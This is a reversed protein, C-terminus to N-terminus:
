RALLEGKVHQCPFLDIPVREKGHAMYVMFRACAKHNLNCYSRALYSITAPYKNSYENLFACTEFLECKCM